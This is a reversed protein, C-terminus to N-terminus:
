LKPWPGARFPQEIAPKEDHNRRGRRQRSRGGDRCSSEAGPRLRAPRAGSQVKLVSHRQDIGGAAEKIEGPRIRGQWALGDAPAGPARPSSFCSIVSVGRLQLGGPRLVQPAKPKRFIRHYLIASKHYVIALGDLPPPHGYAMPLAGALASRKKHSSDRATAKSEVPAGTACTSAKVCSPASRIELHTAIM